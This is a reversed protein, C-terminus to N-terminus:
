KKRLTRLAKTTIKRKRKERHETRKKKKAYEATEGREKLDNKRKRKERHRLAGTNM